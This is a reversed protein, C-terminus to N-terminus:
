SKTKIPGKNLNRANDNALSNVRQNQNAIKESMKERTERRSRESQKTKNYAQTIPWLKIYTVYTFFIKLIPCSHRRESYGHIKVFFTLAIKKGQKLDPLLGQM